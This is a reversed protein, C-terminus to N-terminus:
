EAIASEDLGLRVRSWRALSRVSRDHIRIAMASIPKPRMMTRKCRLSSIRAPPGSRSHCIPSSKADGSKQRNDAGRGVIEVDLVCNFGVTVLGFFAPDDRAARQNQQEAGAHNPIEHSRARRSNAIKSKQFIARSNLRLM